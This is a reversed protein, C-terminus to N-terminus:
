SASMAPVVTSTVPAVPNMAPCQMSSNSLWPYATRPVTRSAAAASTVCRVAIARRV